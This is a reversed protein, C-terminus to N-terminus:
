AQCSRLSLSLTFLCNSLCIQLFITEIDDFPLLLKKLIYTMANDFYTNEQIDIYSGALSPDGLYAIIFEICNNSDENLGNIDVTKGKKTGTLYVKQDVLLGNIAHLAKQHELDINSHCLATLKQM